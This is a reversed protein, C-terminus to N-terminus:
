SKKISQNVKLECDMCFAIFGNGRRQHTHTHQTNYRASMELCKVIRVSIQVHALLHEQMHIYHLHSSLSETVTYVRMGGVM